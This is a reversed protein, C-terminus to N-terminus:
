NPILDCSTTLKVLVMISIPSDVLKDASSAADAIALIAFIVPKVDSSYWRKPLETTAKPLLKAVVSDSMTLM